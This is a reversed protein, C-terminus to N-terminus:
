QTAKEIESVDKIQMPSCHSDKTSKTKLPPTTEKNKRFRDLKDQIMKKQYGEREQSAKQEYQARTMGKQLPIGGEVREKEFQKGYKDVEFEVLTVRQQPQLNTKFSGIETNENEPKLFREDIMSIIPVNDNLTYKEIM